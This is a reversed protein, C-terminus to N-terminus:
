LIVVGSGGVAFSDDKKVRLILSVSVLPVQDLSFLAGDLLCFLLIHSFEEALADVVLFGCVDAQLLLV